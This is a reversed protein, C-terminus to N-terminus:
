FYFPVNSKYDYNYKTLSTVLRIFNTEFERDEDADYQVAGYFFNVNLFDLMWNPQNTISQSYNYGFYLVLVKEFGHL